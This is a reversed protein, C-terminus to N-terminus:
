EPNIKYTSNGRFAFSNNSKFVSYTNELFGEDTLFILKYTSHTPEENLLIAFIDLSDEFRM